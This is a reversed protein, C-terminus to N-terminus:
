RPSLSGVLSESKSPALVKMLLPPMSMKAILMSPDNIWSAGVIKTVKEIIICPSYTGVLVSPGERNEFDM